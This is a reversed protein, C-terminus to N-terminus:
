ILIPNTRMDYLNLFFGSRTIYGKMLLQWLIQCVNVSIADNIFLDQEELKDFYSCGNGQIEITDLEKIQPYLDIITPLKSKFDKNPQSISVSGLIAQGKTKTNGSDLWYYVKDSDSTKNKNLVEMGKFLADFEYRFDATDVATIYINSLSDENTLCNFKKPEARFYTAFSRNIKSVLAIAKNEGIDTVTFMQRGVNFEEVYDDDYVIVDLGPKGGQRLAYDIRALRSLILSGTGGCGILTITIPHTPNLVYDSTNHIKM